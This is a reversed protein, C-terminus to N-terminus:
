PRWRRSSPKSMDIKVVTVDNYASTSSDPRSADGHHAVEEASDGCVLQGRRAPVWPVGFVRLGGERAQM